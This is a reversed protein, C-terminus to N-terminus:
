ASASPAPRFRWLWGMGGLAAIYGLIIVHSVLASTAALDLDLGVVAYGATWGAEWTGVSAVPSLPLVASLHLGTTGILSEAFSLDAVPAGLAEPAAMAQLVYFCAGYTAAWTALSVVTALVLQGTGQSALHAASEGVFRRLRGEAQRLIALRAAMPRLLALGLVLVALVGLARPAIDGMGEAGAGQVNSFALGVLLWVAVSMLDLIRIVGLTSVGEPLPRGAESHLLWPLAAEGSRFPLVVALLTHRASISTFHAVNSVGPLLLALRIGRGLYSLAYVGFALAVGAWDLAAFTDGLRAPELEALTVVLTLLVVSAILTPVLRKV